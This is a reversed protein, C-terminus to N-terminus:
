AKVRANIIPFDREVLNGQILDVYQMTIKNEGILASTVSVTFVKGDRNMMLDNHQDGDGTFQHFNLIEQQTPGSHNKLWENFWNSRKLVVEQDYLTASSWIHPM